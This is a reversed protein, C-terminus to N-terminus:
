AVPGAARGGAGQGGGPGGSSPGAGPIPPLFLSIGAAAVLFGASWLLCGVFGQTEYVWGSLLTGTLRGGANAMYYFGVDSAAKKHDSYALVLFSHLISNVAFFLGYALLGLVILVAPNLGASLGLAIGLPFVVLAAAWLAVATRGLSATLARGDFVRSVGTQSLGYGVIWLGLFGAVLEFSWGLGEQLFIPLGIVFWVDRSGFLFFRAGSLVNIARPKQFQSWLDLRKPSRGLDKPLAPVTLLVGAALAISMLGMGVRMGISAMMLGGVVFGLGKLANKSGTITAVWRFLASNSKDPIIFKLSTKSSVKVLDKAVGSLGQTVMVYLVTLDDTPVVMMATALVQLVLGAILIKELGFNSGLWGGVFNTLVGAIEYLIFLGAIQFGTFGMQHFTLTVLMRIAGDTIEFCLYPLTVSLVRRTDQM